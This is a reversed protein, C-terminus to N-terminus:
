HHELQKNNYIYIEMSDNEFQQQNTQVNNQPYRTHQTVISTSENTKKYTRNFDM